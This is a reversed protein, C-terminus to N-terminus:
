RSAKKERYARIKGRVIERFAEDFGISALSMVGALIARGIWLYM